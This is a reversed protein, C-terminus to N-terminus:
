SHSPYKPAPAFLALGSALMPFLMMILLIEHYGHFRDFAYGFPLPGLASGIVMATMAIGRISGQYKRGYYNPWMVNTSVSDFACFVGHLAAYLLLVGNSRGWLLLIMALLLILFGWAKIHHVRSRDVIYGAVFTLPFQVIATVSLIMAAFSSSFGQTQIMSVIHFTIGTNVMSPVVMCFIMIWFARTAMAQRLTWPDDSISVKPHRAFESVPSGSHNGDPKQGIDEPKDKVLFWGLPAMIIFLSFGLVMWGVHAGFRQILWDNVPPFFASGVVSGVAMLSLAKGRNKLFWQPVLTSPLLSMSGQGLLRLFFFGIFLMLPHSVFSMWLCALGLLCPILVFLKRHGRRDIMRGV